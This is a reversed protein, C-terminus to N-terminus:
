GVTLAVSALLEGIEGFRCSASGRVRDVRQEPTPLPYSITGPRDPAGVGAADVRERALSVRGYARAGTVCCCYRVALRGRSLPREVRSHKTSRHV